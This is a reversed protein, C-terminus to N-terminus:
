TIKHKGTGISKDMFLSIKAALKPEYKKLDKVTIDYPDKGKFKAKLRSYYAPKKSVPMYMWIERLTKSLISDTYNKLVDQLKENGSAIAMTQLYHTNMWNFYLPNCALLHLLENFTKTQSIKQRLRQNARILCVARITEFKANCM